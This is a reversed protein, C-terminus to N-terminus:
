LANSICGTKDAYMGTIMCARAPICEAVPTYASDFHTGTKVLWDLHPTQLFAHGLARISDVRQQDTFLHLINPQNM